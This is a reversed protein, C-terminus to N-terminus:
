GKVYVVRLWIKLLKGIPIWLLEDIYEFWWFLKFGVFWFCVYDFLWVILVDDAVVGLM